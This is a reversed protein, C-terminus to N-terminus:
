KAPRGAVSAASEDRVRIPTGDALKSQGSLVVLVGPALADSELTGTVEVWGEGRVGPVIEVAQVEDGDVVFLKTVGAFTVLAELPVTRAQEDVRTFIGVKAFGGAKLRRARNDILAEILFTHNAPNVTPSVRSVTGDFLEDGYADVRLKVTQGVRVEGLYREPVPATLKLPHDIVLHMVATSPFARVMEGESVLRESVVYQAPESADGTLPPAVIQTDSLRKLATELVAQRQRAAAVIAEAELVAQRLTAQAVDYDTQAQDWEEESTVRKNWLTAIREKRRSVNEYLLRARRVGPLESVDFGEAPVAEVGLRALELDLARRAESVALEFDTPDIALLLTGPAVRDGVDHFIREVRGEVQPTVVVEEFAKLTGVTPVLRQVARLEVRGVTVSVPAPADAAAQQAAADAASGHGSCGALLALSVLAAGSATARSCRSFSSPHSMSM